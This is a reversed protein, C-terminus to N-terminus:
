LIMKMSNKKIKNNNRSNHKNTTKNEPNNNNNLFKSAEDAKKYCSKCYPDGINANQALKRIKKLVTDTSIHHYYLKSRKYLRSRNRSCSGVVCLKRNEDEMKLYSFSFNKYSNLFLKPRHFSLIFLSCWIFNFLLIQNMIFSYYCTIIISLLLYLLLLLYM